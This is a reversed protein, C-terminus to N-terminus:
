KECHAYNVSRSKCIWISINVFKTLIFSALSINPFCFNICGNNRCKTFLYKHLAILFSAAMKDHKTILLVNKCTVRSIFNTSLPSDNWWFITDFLIRTDHLKSVSLCKLVITCLFLLQFYFGMVRIHLLFYISDIACLIYPLDCLLKMVTYRIYLEMTWTYM